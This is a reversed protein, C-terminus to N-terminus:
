SELELDFAINQCKKLIQSLEPDSEEFERVAFHGLIIKDLKSEDKEKGDVIALLYNLQRAISHYIEFDPTLKLREENIAIAECLTEKKNM